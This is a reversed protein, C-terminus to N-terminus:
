NSVQKKIINELYRIVMRDPKIVEDSRALMYFYQLSIWSRQGPIRKIKSEYDRQRDSYSTDKTSEEFVVDGEELVEGCDQCVFYGGDQKVNEHSCLSDETSQSSEFRKM